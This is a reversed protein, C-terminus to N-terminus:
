GCYIIWTKLDCPYSSTQITLISTGMTIVAFPAIRQSTIVHVRIYMNKSVNKLSGGTFSFAMATQQESIVPNVPQVHLHVYCMGGLYIYIDVLSCPM